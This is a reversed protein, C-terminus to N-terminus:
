SALINGFCGMTRSLLRNGGQPDSPILRHILPFSIGLASLLEVRRLEMIQYNLLM